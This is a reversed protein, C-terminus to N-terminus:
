RQGRIAAKEAKADNRLQGAQKLDANATGLDSAARARDGKALDVKAQAQLAYAAGSLQNAKNIDANATKRVQQIQAQTPRKNGVVAQEAASSKLLRLRIDL